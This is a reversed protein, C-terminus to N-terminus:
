IFQEARVRWHRTQVLQRHKVGSVVTSLFGAMGKWYFRPRHSQLWMAYRYTIAFTAFLVAFTYGVLAADFHSLNRSGAVILAALMLTFLVGWAASRITEKTM